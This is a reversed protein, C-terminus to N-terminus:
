NMAAAMLGEQTADARTFEGGIEGDRLMLIRDSMGILEPLELEGDINLRERHFFDLM